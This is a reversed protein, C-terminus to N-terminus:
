IEKAPVGAVIKYPLVDKLVVAGAGVVVGKGIKVGQKVVAGAGIFSLSEMKVSSAIKAGISVHIHNELICDHEIIAGTNILVNEGIKAESNVISYALIQCGKEIKASPSVYARPHILNLPEFGLSLAYDYLKKRLSNDKVSGVGIAFYKIDRYNSLLEDGGIIKVGLVEKGWKEKDSDIIYLPKFEKLLYITEIVVKSHGGGGLIICSKM